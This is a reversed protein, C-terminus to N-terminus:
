CCCWGRCRFSRPGLAVLELRVVGLVLLVELLVDLVYVSKLLLRLVKRVIDLM